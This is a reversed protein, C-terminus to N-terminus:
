FRRISIDDDPYVEIGPYKLNGDMLAAQKKLWSLDVEVAGEPVRGGAIGKILETKSTIRV